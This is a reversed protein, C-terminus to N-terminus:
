QYLIFRRLEPSFHSGNLETPLKGILSQGDPSEWRELRYKVNFPKIDLGQVVFDNYGKFTSGSPLNEPKVKVTEHIELNRTKDRKASGPRKTLSETEKKPRPELVSPKISPKPKEGKLRAIEDRLLQNEEYLVNLSELLMLVLPTQEEFPIDIIKPIQVVM